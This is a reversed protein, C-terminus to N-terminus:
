FRGRSAGNNTKQIEGHIGQRKLFGPLFTYKSSIPGNPASGSAMLGAVVGLGIEFYGLLSGFGGEYVWLLGLIVGFRDM